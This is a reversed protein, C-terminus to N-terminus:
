VLVGHDSTVPDPSEGQELALLLGQFEAMTVASGSSEVFERAEVESADPFFRRYLEIKQRGTAKGLFLRYDIRGPRLLAADLVEIHNTTMVFLVNAPAHFGDLANLLGSLTVGNMAASGKETQTGNSANPSEPERAKGSKACDIDEFLLVSNAPVQNVANVLTRDSFDALNVVYISLGFHAALASVLSTKGTGPPGYLLYGRHYPIGLRAYRLKSARFNTVDEVLHEKEGPQLVVSDLLRPAYGEVHDWGDNYVYLYSQVGLRMTHCQVVDNVFRQLFMRNRGLTRFTFSEVRKTTYERSSETRSFWVEFPRGGYWFWHKGPAPIMAIRENRLTTDLDVNRIRALFKQELFWEKVWVFAADDDAVTVLMTTERVLWYWVTEPVSRLYVSLGGVIMLMLGGSAVANQGSLM